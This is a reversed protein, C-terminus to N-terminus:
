GATAPERVPTLLQKIASRGAPTIEVWIVRRDQADHRRIAFGLDDLRDALGTAASSTVQLHTAIEGIKVPKPGHIINLVALTGSSLKKNRSALLISHLTSSKM